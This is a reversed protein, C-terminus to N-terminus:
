SHTLCRCSLILWYNANMLGWSNELYQTLFQSNKLFVFFSDTGELLECDLSSVVLSYGYVLYTHMYIYMHTHICTCENQEFYEVIM